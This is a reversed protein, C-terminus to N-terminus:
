QAAKKRRNEFYEKWFFGNEFAVLFLMFRPVDLRSLDLNANQLAALLPIFVIPSALVPALFMGLDFSPRERQPTELWGYLWHALMGALMFGFLVAILPLESAPAGSPSLVAGRRPFGFLFHLLVALSALTALHVVLRAPRRHQSFGYLAIALLGIFSVALILTMTGSM